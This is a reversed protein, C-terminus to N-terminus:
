LDPFRDKCTGYGLVTPVSRIQLIKAVSLGVIGSGCGLDVLSLNEKKKINKTVSEILLKSTLNPEFVNKKLKFFIKKNNIIIFNDTIKM